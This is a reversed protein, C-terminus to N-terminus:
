HVLALAGHRMRPHRAWRDQWRQMFTPWLDEPMSLRNKLHGNAEPLLERIDEARAWDDPCFVLIKPGRPSPERFALLVRGGFKRRCQRSLHFSQPRPRGEDDAYPQLDFLVIRGPRLEAQKVLRMSEERSANEAKAVGEAFDRILVPRMGSELWEVYHNFILHVVADHGDPNWSKRPPLHVLANQLLWGAFTIGEVKGSDVADADHEMGPWGSRAGQLFAAFGDLDPSFIVAGIGRKRFEGVGIMRTTSPAIERVESRVEMNRRQRLFRIHRALYPHTHDEHHDAYYTARWPTTDFECVMDLVQSEPAIDVIAIDGQRYGLDSVIRRAMKKSCDAPGLGYGIISTRGIRRGVEVRILPRDSV